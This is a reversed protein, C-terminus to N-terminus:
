LLFLQRFHLYEVHQGVHFAYIQKSELYEGFKALHKDKERDFVLNSSHQLRLYSDIECREKTLKRTSHNKNKLAVLIITIASNKKLAQPLFFPHIKMLYLYQVAVAM